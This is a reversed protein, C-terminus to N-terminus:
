VAIVQEDAIAYVRHGTRPRLTAHGTFSGFAPLIAHERGVLFCPLRERQGGPGSMRVAPHLHGSLVYTGSRVEPKHVFTFPPLTLQDAVQRFGFEAVMDDGSRDHNGRVLLWEIDPKEKRWRRIRAKLDPSSIGPAHMLDGLILVSEAGAAAIATYLRQLDHTSTGTPIAIGWRRFAAAKGFHPDALILTRREHWYVLRQPLLSLRQDKIAITQSEQM